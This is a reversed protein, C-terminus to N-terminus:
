GTVASTGPKAKLSMAPSNSFALQVIEIFSFGAMDRYSIFSYDKLPRFHFDM